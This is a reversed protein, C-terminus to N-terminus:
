ASIIACGLGSTRKTPPQPAAPGPAPQLFARASEGLALHAKTLGLLAGLHESGGSTVQSFMDIADDPMNAALLVEGFELRVAAAASKEAALTRYLRVATSLDGADRAARAFRLSPGSDGAIQRAPDSRPAPLNSLSSSSSSCAALAAVALLSLAPGTARTSDPRKRCMPTGKPANSAIPVGVFRTYPGCRSEELSANIYTLAHM